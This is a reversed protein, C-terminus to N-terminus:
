LFFQEESESTHVVRLQLKLGKNLLLTRRFQCEMRHKFEYLCCYDYLVPMIGM